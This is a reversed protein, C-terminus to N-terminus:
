RFELDRKRYGALLFWILFWCLDVFLWTFGAASGTRIAILFNSLIVSFIITYFYNGTESKSFHSKREYKQLIYLKHILNGIIFFAIAGLFRFDIFLEGMFSPARYGVDFSLNLNSSVTSLFYSAYINYMGPIAKTISGFTQLGLELMNYESVASIYGLFVYWGDFFINLLINEYDLEFFVYNFYSYTDFLDLNLGQTYRHVGLAIVLFFFLTSGVFLRRIRFEREHHFIILFQIIFVAAFLRGWIYMISLTLLFVACSSISYLSRNKACNMFLMFAGWKTALVFFLIWTKGGSNVGRLDTRELFTFIDGSFYIMAVFSALTGLALFFYSQRISAYNLIDKNTSKIKRRIIFRFGLWYFAMCLLGYLSAKEIQDYEFDALLNYNVSATICVGGVGYLFIVFLGLFLPNLFDNKLNKLTLILILISAIFYIYLM